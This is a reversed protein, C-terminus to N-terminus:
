EKIPQERRDLENQITDLDEYIKWIKRHLSHIMEVLVDTRIDEVLTGDFGNTQTTNVMIIGDIIKYGKNTKRIEGM